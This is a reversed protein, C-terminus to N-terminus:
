IEGCNIIRVDQTPKNGTGTGLDGLQLVMDMGEVVEGFVVHKMDLHPTESLTIFFQSTNSNPGANAM